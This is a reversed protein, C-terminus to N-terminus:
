KGVSVARPLVIEFSAGGEARNRVSITGGHLEIISKAIPLGLGTGGPIASPSRVFKEFVSDLMDKPIGSGSDAVVVNIQEPSLENVLVSIEIGPKNHTAANSIINHLAQQLLTYDCLYSFDRGQFDVRVKDESLEGRLKEVTEHVIDRLDHYESNLRVKGAEIRSMDLLNSVLVNLKRAAIDAENLLASHAMANHETSKLQMASVAGRIVAIPTRLEHSISNLIAAHLKESEEAVRARRKESALFDREITIAAHNVFAFLIEEQDPRLRQRKGSRLGLVGVIGGTSILPYYTGTSLPLTDTYRGAPKRNEFAWFAVSAEKPSLKRNSGAEPRLDLKGDKGRLNISVRADFFESIFSITKQV